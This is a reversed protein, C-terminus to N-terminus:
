EVLFVWSILQSGSDKSYISPDLFVVKKLEQKIEFKHLNNQFWATTPKQAM